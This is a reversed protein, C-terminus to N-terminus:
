IVNKVIELAREAITLAEAANEKSALGEAFEGPISDPYRAPIYFGDLVVIESKLKDFPSKKLLSLLDALKHTKPYMKGKFVIYGKLLKEVCQQPHFCVQNYIQEKMALKALKLDELAFNLWRKAEEKM